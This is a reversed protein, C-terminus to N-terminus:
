FLPIINQKKDEAIENGNLPLLILSSEVNFLVVNEILQRM